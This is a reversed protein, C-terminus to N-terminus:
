GRGRDLVRREVLGNGADGLKFDLGDWRTPSFHDAPVGTVCKTIEQLQYAFCKPELASEEACLRLLLVFLQRTFLLLSPPNLTLDCPTEKLLGLVM